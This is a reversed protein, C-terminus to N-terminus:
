DLFKRLCMLHSAAVLMSSRAHISAILSDKTYALFDFTAIILDIPLLFLYNILYRLFKNLFVVSLLQREKLVHSMM